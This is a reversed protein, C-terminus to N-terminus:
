EWDQIVNHEENREYYDSEGDESESEVDNEEDSSEDSSENDNDDDEEVGRGPNNINEIKSFDFILGDESGDTANSVGCCKFSRRIMNLDIADWSEKVWNAVLSYSPRKVKGSPTYEKIAENM